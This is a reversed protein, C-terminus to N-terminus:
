HTRTCFTRINYVGNEETAVFAFASSCTICSIKDYKAVEIIESSTQGLAERLVQLSGDKLSLWVEDLGPMGM